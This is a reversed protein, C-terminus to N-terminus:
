GRQIELIQDTPTAAGIAGPGDRDFGLAPLHRFRSIKRIMQIPSLIRHGCPRTPEIGEEPVM